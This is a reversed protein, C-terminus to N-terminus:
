RLGAWLVTTAGYRLVLAAGAAAPHPVPLSATAAGDRLELEGVEAEGLTVELRSADPLNVDRVRVLVRGDPGRDLWADGTPVVDDIAAPAWLRAGARSAPASRGDIRIVHLPEEAAGAPAALGLGLAVALAAGVCALLRRRGPRPADPTPRLPSTAHLARM